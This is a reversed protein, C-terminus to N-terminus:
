RILDAVRGPLQKMSFTVVKNSIEIIEKGMLNVISVAFMGNQKLIDKMAEKRIMLTVTKEIASASNMYVNSAYASPLAAFNGPGALKICVVRTGRGGSYVIILGSIIYVVHDSPMNQKYLIDQREFTMLTVGESLRDKEERTLYNFIGTDPVLNKSSRNDNNFSYNKM